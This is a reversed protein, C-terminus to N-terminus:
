VFMTLLCVIWIFLMCMEKIIALLFLSILKLMLSKVVCAKWFSKIVKIVCNVKHGKNGIYGIGEIHGKSNDEFTVDGGSKAKLEMFLNKDDTM